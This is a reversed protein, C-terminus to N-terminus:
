AVYQFARQKYLHEFLNGEHPQDWSIRCTPHAGINLRDISSCSMLQGKFQPNETVVSAVLTTGIRDLMENEPCEVVAVYPFLFEKSALDHGADECWIVTPLLYTSGDDRVLRAETEEGRHKATLDEAGPSRLGAEIASNMMEAFKPNVFAPLEAEPHDSPLPRIKALKAALADALERGNRTTWVASANICSRGGNLAVSTAIFDIYEPWRDAVDDAILVKSFGPGHAQVRPDNEWSKVTSADGFVMARGAKQLIVRAGDHSTPYFNLAEPPVGAKMFAQLVRYPSWPEERGPKLCLVARLAIAPAWLSHVGPSNSPLVAGLTRAEQMFCLTRGNQEGYGRDLIDLDLGRTLGGIVEDIKAMVGYIKEANARCLRIPLGTTWSLQEIYDDYTQDTEGLPLTDHLFIEAAKKTLDVLQSISFDRLPSTAISQDLLDRSVLGSNALSMSAVPEGTRYHSVSAKDISEYPKGGRLVPIHLM